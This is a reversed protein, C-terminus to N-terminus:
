HIREFHLIKAFDMFSKKNGRVYPINEAVQRKFGKGKFLPEKFPPKEINHFIRSLVTKDGLHPYGM